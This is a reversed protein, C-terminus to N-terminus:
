RRPFRMSTRTGRERVFRKSLSQWTLTRGSRFYEQRMAYLTANYLNKSLLALQDMESWGQKSRRIVTKEVLQMM